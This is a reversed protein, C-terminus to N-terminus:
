AEPTRYVTGEELGLYVTLEEEVRPDLVALVEDGPVLM